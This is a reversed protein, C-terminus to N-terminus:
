VGLFKDIMRMFYETMSIGQKASEIKIKTHLEDTVRFVVQKSKM